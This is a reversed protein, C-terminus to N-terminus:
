DEEIVLPPIETEFRALGAIVDAMTAGEEMSRRLAQLGVVPEDETAITEIKGYEPTWQEIGGAWEGGCADYHIRTSLGLDTLVQWHDDHISGFNVKGAMLVPDGGTPIFDDDYGSDQEGKYKEVIAQLKPLDRRKIRGGITIITWVYEGM